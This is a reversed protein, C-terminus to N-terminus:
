LLYEYHKKRVRERWLKGVDLFIIVYDVRVVLQQTTCHFIQLVTACWISFVPLLALCHIIFCIEVKM